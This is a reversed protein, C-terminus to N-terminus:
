LASPIKVAGDVVTTDIKLLSLIISMEDEVLPMKKPNSCSFAYYIFNYSLNIEYNNYEMLLYTIILLFFM